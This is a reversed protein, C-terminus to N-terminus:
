IGVLSFASLEKQFVIEDRRPQIDAGEWLCQLGSVRVCLRAGCSQTEATVQDRSGTPGQPGHGEWGAWAENRAAPM